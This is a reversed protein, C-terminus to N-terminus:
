GRIFTDQNQIGCRLLLYYHLSISFGQFLFVISSRFYDAHSFAVSEPMQGYGRFDGVLAKPKENVGVRDSLGLYESCDM